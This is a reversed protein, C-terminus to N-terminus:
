TRLSFALFFQRTHTVPPPDRHMTDAFSGDLSAHRNIRWSPQVLLRALHTGNFSDLSEDYVLALRLAGGPFPDLAVRYQQTLGASGGTEMWSLTAGLQLRESARWAATGAYVRSAPPQPFLITASAPQAVSGTQASATAGLTLSPFLHASLGGGANLRETEVPGPQTVDRDVGASGNLELTSPLLVVSAGTRAGYSVLSDAAGHEEMRHGELTMTVPDALRVSATAAAQSGLRTDSATAHAGRLEGVLSLNYRDEFPGFSATGLTQWSSSDFSTGASSQVAQSVTGGLGLRVKPHPAATANVSGAQVLVTSTTTTRPRALVNEFAELETVYAETTSTGFNVLKFYRATVPPFSTEFRSRTSDFITSAGGVPNWLLGDDSVWVSWVIGGSYTAPYGSSTRVTVRLADISVLRGMDVGLNQFSVGDPGLSIGSSVEVNGDVLAPAPVLPRGTTDSPRDTVGYLGRSPFRQVPSSVAFGALSEQAVDTFSVSYMAGVAGTSGIPREVQIAAHPQLTRTTLGTSSDTLWDAQGGAALRVPGVGHDLTLQTATDRVESDGSLNKTTQQWVSFRASPLGPEAYAVDAHLREMLTRGIDGGSSASRQWSLDYGAALDVPQLRYRAEFRPQVLQSDSSTPTPERVAGRTDDVRLQANAGLVPTLDLRLRGEYTEQFSRASTGPADVGSYQLTARGSLLDDGAASAPVCAALALLARLAAALPRGNPSPRPSPIV